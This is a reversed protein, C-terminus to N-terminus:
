SLASQMKNIVSNANEMVRSEIEDIAEKPITDLLHCLNLLQNKVHVIRARDARDDSEGNSFYCEVLEVIAYHLDKPAQQQVTQTAWNGLHLLVLDTSKESKNSM